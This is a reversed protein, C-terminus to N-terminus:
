EAEAQVRYQVQISAVWTKKLYLARSTINQHCRSQKINVYNHFCFAIKENPMCWDTVIDALMIKISIKGNAWTVM